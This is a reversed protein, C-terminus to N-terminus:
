RRGPLSWAGGRGVPVAPSLDLAPAASDKHKRGDWGPAPVDGCLLESSRRQPHAAWLGGLGLVPSPMLSTEPTPLPLPQVLSRRLDRGGLEATTETGFGACMLSQQGDRVWRPLGWLLCGGGLGVTGALSESSASWVQHLDGPQPVLPHSGQRLRM